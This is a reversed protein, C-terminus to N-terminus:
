EYRLAEVPNRTAAKWSQWSVTLLATGFSVVGASGFIWISIDTRYIFGQLWKDMFYWAVPCAIIFAIGIWKVFEKNLMVLIQIVKAGNIRRIGIEKTRNEALFAALGYLGLCSIIIAFVTFFAAMKGIREKETFKSEYEQDAFRFDFPISPVIRNFAAEAEPLAQTVSKDPNLRIYLWSLDSETLFIISPRAPEFPSGKVMDKVVGLIEFHTTQQDHPPKGSIIEGIPNALEMLKMASENILVGSLDSHYERNFDRGEIFELGITKGYEATVTITNFTPNFDPRRGKWDFGNNNGKTNIVPYNSTAMENVVGTKLLENRLLNYKGRFEPSGVRLSILRDRNYGIPRDKAYQIQKNVILTGIILIISITYQFVVLIKRPLAIFSGSRTGGRIAKVPDFSSLYFAPYSGAMLATIIIFVLCFITFGKNNWPIEMSKGIAESFFPIILDTLVIALAFSIFASIFSEGLFKRILQGRTSGIAKRIGIEKASKESRATSLNLFNICALLLIFLGIIGYMWVYKLQESTINVGNEFQSYLHWRSMPHLFVEPKSDPSYPKLIDKIKNSVDRFEVNPQLGVFIQMNYNNWNELNPNSQFFREIPAIFTADSFESNAPLDKYVGTVRLDWNADMKVLQNVPDSKSFLKEALSESLLISNTEKLGDVSGYVMRLSFLQPGGSQMFYGNQTFKRLGNAVVRNEAPTRVLVVKDFYNGYSTKLLTGFGTPFVPSTYIKGNEINNQMVMAISNYGSHYKNFSLEDQIWIVILLVVAIGLSLGGISIISDRKNNILIRIISKFFQKTM